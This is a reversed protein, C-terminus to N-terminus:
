TTPEKPPNAYLPTERGEPYASAFGDCRVLAVRDVPLGDPGWYDYRWAVPVAKAEAEIRRALALVLARAVDSGAADPWFPPVGAEAFAARISEESLQTMDTMVCREAGIASGYLGARDM